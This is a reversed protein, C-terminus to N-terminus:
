WTAITHTKKNYNKKINCVLLNKLFNVWLLDRKYSFKMYLGNVIVCTDIKNLYRIYLSLIYIIRQKTFDVLKPTSNITIM